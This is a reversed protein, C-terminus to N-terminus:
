LKRRLYRIDAEDQLRKAKQKMKILDKVSITPIKVGDAKKYVVNKIAKNYDVPTDILIDIESIAWKSNYLNFAKMNKEKIWEERKKKVAFDMIDVPVKPKFGWKKLLKLFKNINDDDLELLIDIDYTTRPIGHLNVAIAGCVIYKIGTKNFERFIGLYDLM